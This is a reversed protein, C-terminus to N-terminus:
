GGAVRRAARRGRWLGSLVLGLGAVFLLAAGILTTRRGGAPDIEVAEPLVISPESSVRTWRIEQRVAEGAAVAGVERTFTAMGLHDTGTSLMPPSGAVVESELPFVVNWRFQGIPREQAPLTFLVTREPGPPIVDQYLEVRIERAPSEFTLYRGDSRGEFRGELRKLRGDDGWFAVEHLEVAPPVALAVPGAASLTAEYLILLRPDDYQPLLTVTFEDFRAAQALLTMPLLLVLALALLLGPFRRM